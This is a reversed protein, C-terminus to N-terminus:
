DDFLRVYFYKYTKQVVDPSNLTVNDDMPPCRIMSFKVVMLLFRASVNMQLPTAMLQAIMTALKNIESSFGIATVM